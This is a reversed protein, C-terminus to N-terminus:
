KKDISYRGAGLLAIAIFGFLYMLPKERVPWPDGGHYVFAAVIMTIIVPIAALRTQYGIIILLPFVTETLTALILSVVVGMGLISAFQPEDSFLNQIKPIGHLWIMLVSFTVRLILRGSDSSM